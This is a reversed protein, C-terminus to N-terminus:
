VYSNSIFDANQTYSNNKNSIDGFTENKELTRITIKKNNKKIQINVKGELILYFNKSNPGNKIITKGYKFTKIKM